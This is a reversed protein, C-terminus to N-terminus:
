IVLLTFWTWKKVNILFQVHRSLICWMILGFTFQALKLSPGESLGLKSIPNQPHNSSSFVQLAFNLKFNKLKVATLGFKEVQCSDSKVATLDSLQWVQCSDFHFINPLIKWWLNETYVTRKRIHAYLRINKLRTWGFLLTCIRIYAYIEFKFFFGIEAYSFTYLRM